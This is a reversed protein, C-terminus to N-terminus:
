PAPPRGPSILALIQDVADDPGLADTDVALDPGPLPPFRFAGDADLRAYLAPDRLKGFRARSESGLRALVSARSCSLAVFWVRGGAAGIAGVLDGILAPDVTAEPHFTFVFSRRERAALAFAERWIAARLAVFGPSGFPFLALAADVALHNHFLPLGARAALRAGITHKGSAAPGHLFVVFLPDPRADASM